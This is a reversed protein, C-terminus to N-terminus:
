GKPPRREPKLVCRDGLTRWGEPSLDWVLTRDEYPDRPRSKVWGRKRLRGLALTLQRPTDFQVDVNPHIALESALREFLEAATARRGREEVHVALALLLQEEAGLIFAYSTLSGGSRV